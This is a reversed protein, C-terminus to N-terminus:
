LPTSASCSEWNYRGISRDNETRAWDLYAEFFMDCTRGPLPKELLHIFFRHSEIKKEDGLQHKFYEDANSKGVNTWTPNKLHLYYRYIATPFLHHRVLANFMTMYEKDSARFGNALFCLYRLNEEDKPVPSRDM